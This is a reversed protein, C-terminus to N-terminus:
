RTAHVEQLQVPSSALHGFADLDSTFPLDVAIRSNRAARNIPSNVWSILPCIRGTGSRFWTVGVRSEVVLARGRRSEM